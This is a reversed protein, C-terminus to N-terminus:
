EGDSGRRFVDDDGDESSDEEDHRRRQSNLEIRRGGQGKFLRVYNLKICM